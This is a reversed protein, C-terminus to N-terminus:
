VQARRRPGRPTAVSAADEVEVVPGLAAEIEPPWQPERLLKHSLYRMLGILAFFPWAILMVTSILALGFAQDRWTAVFGDELIPQGWVLAARLTPEDFLYLVDGSQWLPGQSQMYRRIHEWRQILMDHQGYGVTPGVGFRAIVKHSGPQDTIAFVLGSERRLIQGTFVTIQVIEGRVCSWDYSLTEAPIRGWQKWGLEWWWHGLSRFVHVKGDSKCVAVPEYRYGTIDQQLLWCVIITCPLVLVVYLLWLVWNGATLTMWALLLMSPFGILWVASGYGRFAERQDVFSFGNARVQMVSGFTRAREAAKVNLQPLLVALQENTPELAQGSHSASTAAPM